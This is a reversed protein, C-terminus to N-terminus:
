QDELIDVVEVAFSRGEPWSDPPSLRPGADLAGQLAAQMGPGDGAPFTMTGADVEALTPLDGVASAVVPIGLVRAELVALPLGESRSPFCAVAWTSMEELKRTGYLPGLWTVGPRTTLSSCPVAGALADAREARPGVLRVEVGENVSDVLLDVGKGPAILGLYGVRLAGSHGVCDEEALLEDSAEMLTNVLGLNTVYITRRGAFRHGHVCSLITIAFKAILSYAIKRRLCAAKSGALEARFEGHLHVVLRASPRLRVFLACILDRALAPGGQSLPLYVVPKYSTHWTWYALKSLGVAAALLALPNVSGRAEATSASFAIWRHRVNRRSLEEALVLNCFEVGSLENSRRGLLIIM